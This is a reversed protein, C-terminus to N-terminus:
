AFSVNTSVQAKRRRLGYGVMGFGLIMMAWTAPEPVAGAADARNFAVSVGGRNDGLFDDYLYLGVDADAVLTFTGTYKSSAAFSQEATNYYGGTAQPGLGGSANGDGFLLTGNPLAIRVSNEFGTTCLAGSADCGSSGSFRSFALFSDADVFKFTYTGAILRTIVANSGDLSANATGSVPVITTAAQAPMAYLGLLGAAALALKKM